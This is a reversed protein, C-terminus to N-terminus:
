NKKERFHLRFDVKKPLQVVGIKNLKDSIANLIIPPKKHIFEHLSSAKFVMEESTRMNGRIQKQNMM